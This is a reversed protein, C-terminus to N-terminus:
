AGPQVVLHHVEVHVQQLLPVLREARQGAGGALGAVEEVGEEHGLQQLSVNVRVFIHLPPFQSSAHVYSVQPSPTLTHM